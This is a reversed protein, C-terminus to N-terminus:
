RTVIFEGYEDGIELGKTQICKFDLMGKQGTPDYTGGYALGMFAASVGRIMYASPRMTKIDAEYYNYCRVVMKENPILDTIESMAWGWATLVAFLGHLIDEPVERVMPKVSKNWIDSAIIGHGTHYGCEQACKILLYEAEETLEAAVNSLFRHTFENWFSAPLQQIYVGFAPILGNEDGAFSIKSLDEIVKMRDVNTGSSLTLKDPSPNIEVTRDKFGKSLEFQSFDDGLCLSKTEVVEVLRPSKLGIHAAVAEIFGRTIVNVPKNCREWKRLWGEDLHSYDMKAQVTRDTKVFDILGMGIFRYYDRAVAIKNENREINNKIYYENLFSYFIDEATQKLTEEGKFQDAYLALQTILTIYHHCHLVTCRNNLYHRNNKQNFTHVPTFNM